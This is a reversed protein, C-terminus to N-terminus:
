LRRMLITSYYPANINTYPNGVNVTRKPANRCLTGPHQYTRLGVLLFFIYLSRNRVKALWELVIWAARGVLDGRCCHDGRRVFFPSREITKKNPRALFKDAGRYRCTLSNLTQSHQTFRGLSPRVKTKAQFFHYKYTDHHKSLVSPRSLTQISRWPDTVQLAIHRFASETKHLINQSTHRTM